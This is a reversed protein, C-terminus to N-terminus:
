LDDKGKQKWQGGRQKIQPIRDNGMAKKKREMRQGQERERRERLPRSPRLTWEM